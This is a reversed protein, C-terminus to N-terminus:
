KKLDKRNYRKRPSVTLHPEGCFLVSLVGGWFLNKKQIIVCHLIDCM